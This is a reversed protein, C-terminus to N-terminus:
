EGSGACTPAVERPSDPRVDRRRHPPESRCAVLGGGRASHPSRMRSVVESGAMPERLVKKRTLPFGDSDVDQLVQLSDQGVRSLVLVAPPGGMPTICTVSLREVGM